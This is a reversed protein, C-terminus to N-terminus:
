FCRTLFLFHFCILKSWLVYRLILGVVARPNKKKSEAYPLLFLSQCGSSFPMMVNEYGPRYYNALVTLASLQNTNVYFIIVEPNEKTIDVQSM